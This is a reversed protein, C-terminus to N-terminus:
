SRPQPKRPAPTPRTVAPAKGTAAAPAADLQALKAQAEKAFADSGAAAARYRERAQARDNGLLALDGAQVLTAPDGPLLALARANATRALDLKGEEIAVAASFYWYFPDSAATAQAEGLKARALAFDKQEFAVRARDILAEGRQLGTLGTGALAGDLAVAAKGGNGAALWMNGAAALARDRDAGVARSAATEFEGAAEAFRGANGAAVARCAAGPTGAACNPVPAAHALAAAAFLAIIM